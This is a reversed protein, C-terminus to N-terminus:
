SLFREIIMKRFQQIDGLDSLVIAHVKRDDIEGYLHVLRNRFKAMQRLRASLDEPIIGEEELVAFSDSYDKPARYRESAIVHNAVDLCTEVSVQLYYRMSGILVKDKVFREVPTKALKELVELYEDLCSFKRVIKESSVM